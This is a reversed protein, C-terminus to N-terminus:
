SLLSFLIDADKALRIDPFFDNEPTCPLLIPPKGRCLLTTDLYAPYAPDQVAIQVDPGFLIQLRGIDCGAGDSIFIENEQFSNQYIKESIAERLVKIGEEPGYGTYGEYTGLAAAADQLGITGTPVIPETTDGVSLSILKASPNKQLFAHKQQEIERFIYRESVAQFHKNRQM